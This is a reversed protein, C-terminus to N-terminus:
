ATALKSFSAAHRVAIDCDYFCRVGISGSTINTYPDILIEMSSWLALIVESWNGFLLGNAPLHNSVFGAYGNCMGVGPASSSWVFQGTDTGKDQQKLHAAVAATAVYALNGRLANAAALDTEMNLVDQFDPQGPTTIAEEAVGTITYVGEPEAGTGSGNFIAADVANAVQRVLDQTILDQAQPLSQIGVRRSFITYAAATSPSMTISDLTPDSASVTDTGDANLWEATAGATQRPISINQTLGPIETIGLRMAIAEARLLEIFDQFRQETGVLSAGAAAGGITVQREIGLRDMPILIGGHYTRKDDLSRRLDQHLELELCNGKFDGAAAQIARAISYHQPEPNRAGRRTRPVGTVVQGAEGADGRELAAQRQEFYADVAYQRFQEDTWGESISRQVDAAELHYSDAIELRESFRERERDVAMQQSRSLKSAPQQPQPQKNPENGEMPTSRFIGAGTDAPVSVLSMEMPQWRTVRTIGEEIVHQMVNAGLSVGTVVRDLIDQLVERGRQTKGMVLEGRLKGGDLRLNDVRGINLKSRDHSEIVPLPARSLDVAAPSHELVTPFESFGDDIPADTSLVVPITGIAEARELDIRLPFTQLREM